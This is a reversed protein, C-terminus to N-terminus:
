KGTIKKTLRNRVFLATFCVALYVVILIFASAFAMSYVNFVYGPVAKTVGSFDYPIRYILVPLAPFQQNQAFLSGLPPLASPGTPTGGSALYIVASEGLAAGGGLLIGTIIGPSAAYLVVKRVTDWKTAGLAFSAERYSAPVSRMAEEAVRINWPLIMLALGLVGATFTFGMSFGGQVFLGYAILGIVISPIGALTEIFFRIVETIINQKAYESLFIAAGLGIPIAIIECFFALLLSGIVYGMIGIGGISGPQATNALTGATVMNWKLNTIFDWNLYFSGRIGSYVFLFVIVSICVAICIIMGIKALNEIILPHDKHKTESTRRNRIEMITAIACIVGISLALELSVYNLAALSITAVCAALSLKWGMSHSELLVYGISFLAFSPLMMLLGIVTDAILLDSTQVTFGDVAYANVLFSLSPLLAILATAFLLGGTLLNEKEKEKLNQITRILRSPINKIKNLM